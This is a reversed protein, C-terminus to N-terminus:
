RLNNLRGGKGEGKTEVEPFFSVAHIHANKEKKNGEGERPGAFTIHM